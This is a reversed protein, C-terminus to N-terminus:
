HELKRLLFVAAFKECEFNQGRQLLCFVICRASYSILYHILIIFVKMGSPSRYPFSESLCIEALGSLSAQTQSLILKTIPLLESTTFLYTTSVSKSSSTPPGVTPNVPEIFKGLVELILPTATGGEYKGNWEWDEDKTSMVGAPRESCEKNVQTVRTTRRQIVKLIQLKFKASDFSRKSSTADVDTYQISDQRCGNLLIDKIQCTALFAKSECHILTAVPDDVSMSPEGFTPDSNVIANSNDNYRSYGRVQKLRDLSHRQSLPDSYLRLISAKHKVLTQPAKKIDEGDICVWPEHKQSSTDVNATNSHTVPLSFTLRELESGALDEIDAELEEDAPEKEQEGGSNDVAAAGGGSEDNKDEDAGGDKICVIKGDGFPCLLDFGKGAIM